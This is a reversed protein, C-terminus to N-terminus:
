DDARVRDFPTRGKEDFAIPPGNDLGLKTADSNSSLMRVGAQKAYVLLIGLGGIMVMVNGVRNVQTQVAFFRLFLGFLLSMMFLTNLLWILVTKRSSIQICESRIKEVDGFREQALSESTDRTLGSRQFEDARMDLHFRLEDDVENAISNKRRRIQKILNKV